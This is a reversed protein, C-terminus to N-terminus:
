LSPPSYFCLHLIYTHLIYESYVQIIYQIYILQFSCLHQIYPIVTSYQRERECLHLLIYQMYPIYIHISYIYFINEICLSLHFSVQTFKANLVNCQTAKTERACLHHIYTYMCFINPDFAGCENSRLFLMKNFVEFLKHCRWSLTLPDMTSSQHTQGNQLTWEGSRRECGPFRLSPKFITFNRFIQFLDSYTYKRHKILWCYRDVFISMFIKLLYNTM